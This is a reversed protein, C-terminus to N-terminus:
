APILDMAQIRIKYGPPYILSKIVGDMRLYRSAKYISIMPKSVNIIGPNLLQSVQAPVMRAQIQLLVFYRMYGLQKKYQSFLDRTYDSAELDNKIHLCRESQWEVYDSPLHSINMQQGLRLFVGFVEEKEAATLKRELLEFSRVSYDILMYLVDRYAWAPIRYGRAKELSSHIQNIKRIANEAAELKSFVIERAYGVTAFLRGLPDSPLKGTYYLWDVAKNLAFEAASGAFIFLVTDSKGWIERVISGKRVFYEM